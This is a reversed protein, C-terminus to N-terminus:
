PLTEPVIVRGGCPLVTSKGGLSERIGWGGPMCGGVRKSVRIRTNALLGGFDGGAATEFSVADCSDTMDSGRTENTCVGGDM